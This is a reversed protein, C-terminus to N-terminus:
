LLPRAVHIQCLKGPILLKNLNFIFVPLAIKAQLHMFYYGNTELIQKPFSFASLDVAAQSPDVNNKSFEKYSLYLLLAM